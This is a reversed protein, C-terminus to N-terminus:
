TLQMVERVLDDKADIHMRLEKIDINLQDIVYNCSLREKSLAAVRRKLGSFDELLILRQIDQMTQETNEYLQLEPKGVGVIM